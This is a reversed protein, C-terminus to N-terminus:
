PMSSWLCGRQAARSSEEISVLLPRMLGDDRWAIGLGEEILVADILRGHPTLLYRLERGFDDRERGDSALRVARGALAALRDTAEVYCAEGQEATDVGFLRIRATAANDLSVDLTDGDIV